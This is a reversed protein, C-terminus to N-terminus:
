ELLVYPPLVLASTSANSVTGNMYTVSIMVNLRLGFSLSNKLVILGGNHAGQCSASKTLPATRSVPGVPPGPTFICASDVGLTRGGMSLTANISVVPSAAENTLALYWIYSRPTGDYPTVFSNIGLQKVVTTTSRSFQPQVITTNADLTKTVNQGSTLFNVQATLVVRDGIDGCSLRSYVSSTSNAYVPFFQPFTASSNYCSKFTSGQGSVGVFISGSSAVSQGDNWLNVFMVPAATANVKIVTFNSFELNMTPSVLESSQSSNSKSLGSLESQQYVAFTALVLIAIVV